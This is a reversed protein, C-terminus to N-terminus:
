SPPITQRSPKTRFFKTKLCNHWGRTEHILEYLEKRFYGPHWPNNYIIIAEKQALNTLFNRLVEGHFPNSMYLILRSGFQEFDLTSADTVVLKCEMKFMKAFNSKAVSSLASSYEVGCVDAVISAKNLLQQWVLMAKGKGCGVDVFVYEDFENGLLGRVFEFSNRIESTWSPTYFTGYEFGEPQENYDNRVVAARTDTGHLLDFLHAEKFHYYPLRIGWAKSQDWYGWLGINDAHPPRGYMIKRLGNAALTKVSM